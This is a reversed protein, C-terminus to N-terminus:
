PRDYRARVDDLATSATVLSGKSFQVYRMTTEIRAHGLWMQITKVDVGARMLRSACTHRTTYWVFDKDYNDEAARVREWVSRLRSASARPFVRSDNPEAAKRRKLVEACKRTIPVRRAEGTKTADGWIRIIGEELDVNQWQLLRGEATRMGTEIFLIFLDALDQHHWRSMMNYIREEQEYDFFNIRGKASNHHEMKPIHWTM